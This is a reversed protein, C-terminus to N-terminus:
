TFRDTARILEQTIATTSAAHGADDVIVIDARPWVRNLGWAQAIPAQFDLRGNVMIGPIDELEHANRLLSGDEPWADHRVYHTVIHAFAM